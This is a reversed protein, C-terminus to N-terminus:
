GDKKGETLIGENRLWEIFIELENGEAYRMAYVFINGDELDEIHRGTDGDPPRRAARTERPVPLARKAQKVARLIVKRKRDSELYGSGRVRPLNQRRRTLPRALTRVTLLIMRLSM